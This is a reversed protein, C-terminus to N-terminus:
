FYYPFKLSLSFDPADPTLGMSLNPVVTLRDSAALTMGINFYAANADSGDVTQWNGGDYRIRSSRSILESFSISLSMRENLAFAMGLGFQFYDGLKVSGPVEIERQASIDSFDEAFNHTYALNGFVVAPDLTKVLSIGATASWAGNGTPLSEPVTLNDNDPSQNLKIGYPHDGTPAKVRLSFVADPRGPSEDLFKYAVGFSIDGLKPGGEVVQESFTTSAGGAGASRYTTERYIYPVNVDFQWRQRWNYRATLDFTFTDANIEDVGINGLFIADLALFGNLFLQRTDYHSYTLGPEISFSGGGFFGSAEQYLAEVSPAQENDDRLSQGYGSAANGTGQSASAVRPSATRATPAAASSAGEIQRLRQELIMLANQQAEYRQRLLEIEQRLASEESTQAMLNGTVALLLVCGASRRM